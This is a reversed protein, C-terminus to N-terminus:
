TPAEAHTRPHGEQDDVFHKRQLQHGTPPAKRCLRNERCHLPVVPALANVEQSVENSCDNQTGVTCEKGLLKQFLHDSLSFLSMSMPSTCRRAAATQIWKLNCEATDLDPEMGIGLGEAAQVGM